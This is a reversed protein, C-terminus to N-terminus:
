APGNLQRSFMYASFATRSDSMHHRFRDSSLAARPTSPFNSFYNNVRQESNRVIGTRFTRSRAHLDIFVRLLAAAPRFRGPRMARGECATASGLTKRKASDVRQVLGWDTTLCLGALIGAPYPPSEALWFPVAACTLSTPCLNQSDTSRSRVSARRLFHNRPAGNQGLLRSPISKALRFVERNSFGTAKRLGHADFGQVRTFTTATHSVTIM